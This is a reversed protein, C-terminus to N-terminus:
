QNVLVEAVLRHEWEDATFLDGGNIFLDNLLARAEQYSSGLLAYYDDCVEDDTECVGDIDVVAPLWGDEETYYIGLACGTGGLAEELWCNDSFSYVVEQQENEYIDYNDVRFNSIQNLVQYAEDKTLKTM